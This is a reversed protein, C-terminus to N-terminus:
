LAPNRQAASLQLATILHQLNEEALALDDVSPGNGNEDDARAQYLADRAELLVHLVAACPEDHVARLADLAERLEEEAERDRVRIRDEPEVFAASPADMDWIEYSVFKNEAWARLEAENHAEFTDPHEPDDGPYELELPFSVTVLYAQPVPASTDYEKHEGILMRIKM